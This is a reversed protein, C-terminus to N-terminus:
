SCFFHFYFVITQKFNQKLQYRKWICWSMRVIWDESPIKSHCSSQRSKGHWCNGDCWNIKGVNEVWWNVRMSVGWVCWVAFLVDSIVNKVVNKEERTVIISYQTFVWDWQVRAVIGEIINFFDIPRRWPSKYNKTTLCKKKRSEKSRKKICSIWLNQKSPLISQSCSIQLFISSSFM